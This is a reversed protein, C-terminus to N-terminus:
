LGPWCLIPASRIKRCAVPVSTLTAAALLDSAVMVRRAPLRDVWAGAPLGVLLWPAWAAATILGMWGPGADFGVVALLPLLM